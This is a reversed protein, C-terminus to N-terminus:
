GDFKTPKSKFLPPTVYHKPRLKKPVDYGLKLLARVYDENKMRMRSKKLIALTGYKKGSRLVDFFCYLALCLYSVACAWVYFIMKEFSPFMLYIFYSAVMVAVLVFAVMLHFKWNCRSLFRGDLAPELRGYVLQEGKCHPCVVVPSGYMPSKVDYPHPHDEGCLRCHFEGVQEAVLLNVELLDAKNKAIDRMCFFNKPSSKAPM